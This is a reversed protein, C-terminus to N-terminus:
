PNASNLGVFTGGNRECVARMLMAFRVTTNEPFEAQSFLTPFGLAHIRVRRGGASRTNLREVENLVAEISPGTFEDGLVYISVKDRGTALTRIAAEIGEVPSSNSFANWGSLRELVARRRAPTDPIWKGAYASFMYVGEDNMVQMGKVKPYADLTEGMKRLLAPWAFRKMSGSTDIVFVVYESDVPIGAVLSPDRAKAEDLRKMEETLEQQAALLRGAIIDQVQSLERSAQFRGQLRSLDGQLRAVASREDSLQERRGRLERRIVDSEGRIEFLERELRAVRGQLETRAEEIARPESMRTLTLLLIIAGFGCCVCDLFSLSFPDLSRRERKM